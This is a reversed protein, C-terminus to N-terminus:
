IDDSHHGHRQRGTAEVYERTVGAACVECPLTRWRTASRKVAASAPSDTTPPLPEEEILETRDWVLPEAEAPDDDIGHRILFEREEDLEAEDEPSPESPDRGYYEAPMPSPPTASTVADPQPIEDPSASVLPSIVPAPQSGVRAVYDALPELHEPTPGAQVVQGRYEAEAQTVRELPVAGPPLHPHHAAVRLEEWAARVATLDPWGAAEAIQRAQDVTIGDARAAYSFGMGRSVAGLVGIRAADIESM